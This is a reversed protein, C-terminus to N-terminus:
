MLMTRRCGYTESPMVGMYKHYDAAVPPQMYCQAQTKVFEIQEPKVIKEAFESKVAENRMKEYESIKETTKEIKEKLKNLAEREDKAMKEHMEAAHVLLRAELDAEAKILSAKRLNKIAAAERLEAARLRNVQADASQRMEAAKALSDEYVAADEISMDPYTIVETDEYMSVSFILGVITLLLVVVLISLIIANASM